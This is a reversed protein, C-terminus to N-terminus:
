DHTYSKLTANIKNFNEQVRNFDGASVEFNGYWIFNYLRIIRRVSNQLENEKIEALYDANTKQYEYNIIGNSDLQKLLRLYYYRVALRYDGRAIAEEILGSIDAKQIIEEEENFIVGPQEMEGLFSAGPNLRIFLWVIFGLIAIIILYPLLKLLFTLISNAQYEGFLWNLFQQYKMDLWKKFRTWWSDKEIENLYDFAKLQRYDELKASDFVVPEVERITDYQVVPRPAISDKQAPFANSCYFISILLLFLKM